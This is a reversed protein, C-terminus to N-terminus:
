ESRTSHQHPTFIVVLGEDLRLSALKFLPVISVLEIMDLKIGHEEPGRLFAITYFCFHNM